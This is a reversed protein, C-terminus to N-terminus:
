GHLLDQVVQSGQGIGCPSCFQIQDEKSANHFTGYYSGQGLYLAGPLHACPCLRQLCLPHHTNAVPPEPFPAHTVCFVMPSPRKHVDRGLHHIQTDATPSSCGCRAPSHTAMGMHISTQHSSAQPPYSQHSTVHRHM